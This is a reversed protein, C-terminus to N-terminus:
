QRRPSRINTALYTASKITSADKRGKGVENITKSLEDTLPSAGYRVLTAHANDLQEAAEEPRVKGKKLDIMTRTLVSAVNLEERRRLVELNRGTRVMEPDDTYTILVDESLRKIGVAGAPQYNLEVQAIRFEGSPWPVALFEVLAFQQESQSMDNLQIEATDEVIRRRYNENLVQTITVNRSVRILLRPWRAVVAFLRSLEQRFIDVIDPPNKIYHSAGGSREAIAIMMEEDFDDGIGLSTIAMQASAFHGAQNSLMDVTNGSEDQGDSLLLLRSITEPGAFLQLQDYGMELARRIDTGGGCVIRRIRELIDPRTLADIRQAPAYIRGNNDFGVVSVYDGDDLLRVVEGAARKANELKSGSMSGSRDIVITLNLPTRQQTHTEPEGAIVDVLLYLRQEGQNFSFRNSLQCTMYM